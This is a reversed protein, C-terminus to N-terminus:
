KKFLIKNKINDFKESTILSLGKYGNDTANKLKKNEYCYIECQESYVQTENDLLNKELIFRFSDPYKNGFFAEVCTTIQYGFKLYANVARGNLPIAALRCISLNNENAIQEAIRLIVQILGQGHFEPKIAVGAIYICDVKKEIWIYGALADNVFIWQLHDNKNLAIELENISLLPPLQQDPIGMKKMANHLYLRDFDILAPIQSTLVSQYAIINNKM